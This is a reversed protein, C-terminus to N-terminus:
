VGDAETTDMNDVGNAQDEASAPLEVPEPWRSMGEHIAKEAHAAKRRFVRMWKEGWIKLLTLSDRASIDLEDSGEGVSDATGEEIMENNSGEAVGVLVDQVTKFLTRMSQVEATLTEELQEAEAKPIGLEGRAAVIQRIRGTVKGLTGSVIEYLWSECLPRGARFSSPNTVGLAWDVVSSPLIVGYNLLKDVLSVAVGTNTARWYAVVSAIIQVRNAASIADVNAPSADANPPLLPEQSFAFLRDKHREIFSLAHSLSKSGVYVLTTVFADIALLQPAPQTFDQSAQNMIAGLIPDIDEDPKKARICDVLQRAEAHFPATEARYKWEPIDNQRSDPICVAFAEPLSDRIRKAFSLRVEKDLLGLVFAKRCHMASLNADDQWEVWKWRFDFNSLHHSFWDMYRYTLELDMVNLHRYLFRIARGLSPAISSPAFTCMETIISHYYVPKHEPCPLKMIQSFIADVALDEVKWTLTGPEADRLRDFQAARTTFTNKPWYCDLEVLYKATRGRNFDLINITDLITDRIVSAALNATRPVTEVDQDAYLSFYIESFLPQPGPNITTPIQVGPFPHKKFAPSMGAILDGESPDEFIKPIYELKWQNAQERRLQTQLLKLVPETTLAEEGEISIYPTIMDEAAPPAFAIVETKNLLEATQKQLQDVDSLPASLVYPITLM